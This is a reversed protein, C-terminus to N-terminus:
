HYRKSHYEEDDAEDGLDRDQPHDADDQHHYTENERQQAHHPASDSPSRVVVLGRRGHGPSKERDRRMPRTACGERHGGAGM